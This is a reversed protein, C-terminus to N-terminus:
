DLSTIGERIAYKTLEPITYINLKDMINKRHTEITKTSLFLKQAITKTPIGEAIQQLIEKERSSLITTQEKEDKNILEILENIVIGSIDKSIFVKKNNVTNIAEILEEFACDKLLYGSAGAKFMGIIFHKDSHMSLAIIKTKDTNELIQKTAEIGNLIPMGIDMLIINPKLELTIKVADRGNEAEGIVALNHEKELVNKIGTRVIKHDDAIVINIKM